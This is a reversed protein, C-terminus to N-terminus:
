SNKLINMVKTIWARSFGFARALEAKNKFKGEDIMKQYGAALNYKNFKLRSISIKLKFKDQNFLTTLRNCCNDSIKFYHQLKSGDLCLGKRNFGTNKYIFPLILIFSTRV